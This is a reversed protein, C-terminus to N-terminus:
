PYIGSKAKSLAGAEVWALLCSPLSHSTGSAGPVVPCRSPITETVTAIPFPPSSNPESRVAGGTRQGPKVCASGAESRGGRGRSAEASLLSWACKVQARATGSGPLSNYINVYNNWSTM